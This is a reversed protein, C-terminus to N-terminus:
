EAQEVIAVSVPEFMVACAECIPWNAPDFRFVGDSAEIPEYDHEFGCVPCPVVWAKPYPVPRDKVEYLETM